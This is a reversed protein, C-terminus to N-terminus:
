SAALGEEQQRYAQLEKILAAVADGKSLLRQQKRETEIFEALDGPVHTNLAKYGLEKMEARHRSMRQKADNDAM